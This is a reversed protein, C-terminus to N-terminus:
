PACEGGALGSAPHNYTTAGEGKDNEPLDVTESIDSTLFSGYERTGSFAYNARSSLSLQAPHMGRAQDILSIIINDILQIIENQRELPIDLHAIESRLEVLENESLINM